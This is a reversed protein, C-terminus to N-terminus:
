EGAKQDAEAAGAPDGKLRRAAAILTWNKQVLATNGRALSNSKQALEEALGPQQQRLRVEALQQWLKPNRPQIRIARELMSAANDLQGSRLNAEAEDMLALAAPSSVVEDRRPPATPKAQPIEAPQSPMQGSKPMTSISPAPSYVPPLTRRQQTSVGTCAAQLLLLSFTLLRKTNIM